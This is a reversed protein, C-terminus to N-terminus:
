KIGAQTTTRGRATAATDKEYIAKHTAAEQVRGLRELCTSLHLHALSYSPQLALTKDFEAVAANCDGVTLLAYGLNYHANVWGPNDALLARYIPIAENSQGSTQLGFARRFNAAPIAAKAWALNNKALRYDPRLRIAHELAPLAEPIFGLTGLTWGLNNWADASTTDIAVSIRYSAAAPAYQKANMLALGRQYWEVATGAPTRALARSYELAVSDSPASELTGQALVRLRDNEGGAAYLDLLAHRAVLDAPSLQIAKELHTIAEPSRGHKALWSAFFRHGAAYNSDTTLARQFWEEAKTSDGMADTVVALNVHLTPYNPNFAYARTFLDKAVPYRGQRMQTLGYNMLGRGNRPSKTVVDQWLTEENLWVRNRQYTGIGHAALVIAAAAAAIQPLRRRVTNPLEARAVVVCIWWVFAATLGMFPFFGRHDNTVEGLPFITSTPVLAIWFWAIGFAVPRLERTRSTRWIVVLSLVFFLVGAIVRPDALTTPGKLDTDASLGTPLFFLRLYRLWIGTQSLFYQGPPPGGNNLAPGNHGEIFFFLGVAVVFAPVTALLSRGVRPWMKASFIDRLSLQDEILLRYVLFLPAFMVAPTKAFAGVVVPLLYLYYRRWTPRLIYILFGGLVGLSSLLESRVQIINETETNTTHLCFFAAAFLAAWNHWPKEGASGFLKGYFVLLIAGTAVLLTLQTVHFWFPDLGGSLSYDIALTTSVLPRYAANAPSVSYTRADTFFHPINALNRIFLNDVIVHSDDFHFSNQLSNSYAGLL